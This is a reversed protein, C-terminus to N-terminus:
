LLLNGIVANSVRWGRETCAVRDGCHQLLGLSAMREIREARVLSAPIGYSTRLGLMIAEEQAETQDIREAAAYDNSHLPDQQYAQLDPRNSFRKGCWFSHAGAGIGLYDGRLWYRLNHRSYMGPKAFSSIEYHAFGNQAAMACLLDYQAEETEEDPFHLQARERFFATGEELQLSYVSLHEPALDFAAQLSCRFQETTQEPLAFLLDLSLNDLGAARADAVCRQVDAFTHTRGLLQLERDSSSQMGISLRNVGANQLRRFLTQEEAESLASPNTELTIEADDALSFHTRVTHLLKEIREIGFLPPTGGGFYVTAVQRTEPFSCLQTEMARLYADKEEETVGARSFFACYRCKRRCFPLHFYLSVTDRATDAIQEITSSSM